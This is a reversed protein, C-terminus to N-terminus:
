MFVSPLVSSLKINIHKYYAMTILKVRLTTIGTAAAGLHAKM